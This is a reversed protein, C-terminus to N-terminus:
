VVVGVIDEDPFKLEMIVNEPVIVFRGDSTTAAEIDFFYTSYNAGTKQNITVDQTDIVEDLDNLTRFIDSIYFPSGFLLKTKFLDKLADTCATLIETQNYELSGLVKYEIGFNVIQGDLIDITDNIM